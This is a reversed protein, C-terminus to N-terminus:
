RIVKITLIPVKGLCKIKNFKLGAKTKIEIEYKKVKYRPMPRQEKICGEIHGTTRGIASEEEM